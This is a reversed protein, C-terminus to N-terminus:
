TWRKDLHPSYQMVAVALRGSKKSALKPRLPRESINNSLAREAKIGEEGVTEEVFVKVDSIELVLLKGM